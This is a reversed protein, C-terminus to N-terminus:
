DPTDPVEGTGSVQKAGRNSKDGRAAGPRRQASLVAGRAREGGLALLRTETRRTGANSSM